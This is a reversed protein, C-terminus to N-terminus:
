YPVAGIEILIDLDLHRGRRLVAADRNVLEPLKEIMDHVASRNASPNTMESKWAQAARIM